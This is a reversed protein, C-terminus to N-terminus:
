NGGSAYHAIGRKWCFSALSLSLVPVALGWAIWLPPLKGLVALSPFNTIVFIPVLFVGVFQAGRGFAVMPVNNFDWFCDALSAIADARVVRFVLTLPILWLSYAVMCGGSAFVAWGIMRFFGPFEGMRYFGVAIMVIGALADLIFLAFDSRRFTALFQSSVPKVLLLDLSGDRVMQALHFLNMMFIGAYFGTLTVFTGVFVLIEDPTYGAIRKGAAYVVIVYMIKAFLYGGEMMLGTAFNARYELQSMLNIRFLRTWIRLHKVIEKM